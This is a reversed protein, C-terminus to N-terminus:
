SHVVSIQWFIIGIRGTSAYFRQLIGHLQAGCGSAKRTNEQLYIVLSMTLILDFFPTFNSKAGCTAQCEYYAILDVGLLM